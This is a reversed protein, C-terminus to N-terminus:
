NAHQVLKNLFAYRSKGGNRLNLYELMVNDLMESQLRLSTELVKNVSYWDDETRCFENVMEEIEQAHKEDIAAHSVLFTTQSKDLGLVSIVKTMLGAIYQYSDEAWFSYGLRQYPNGNSSIYYLYAIFVETSPHPSPITFSDKDLGLNLLDHFAMMEHGAEEEAHEYCFKIYRFVKEKMYVGVLAQHRPNHMVYHYTELLYIGYFRADFDEEM